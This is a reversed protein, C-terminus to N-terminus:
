KTKKNKKYKKFTFIHIINKKYDHYTTTITKLTTKRKLTDRKKKIVKYINLHKEDKKANQKLIEYQTHNM